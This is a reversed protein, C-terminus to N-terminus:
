LVGALRNEPAAESVRELPILCAESTFVRNRVADPTEPDKDCLVPLVSRDTCPPRLVADRRARPRPIRTYEGRRRYLGLAWYRTCDNIATHQYLGPAIKCTDM